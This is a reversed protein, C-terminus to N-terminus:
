TIRVKGIVDEPKLGLEQFQRNVKEQSFDMGKMMAMMEPSMM